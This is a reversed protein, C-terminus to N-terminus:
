TLIAVEYACVPIRVPTGFGTVPDWGPAAAFGDTDCGHSSGKTIDTFGKYGKSYIWPNLFGLSPKGSAILADNVLSIIGGTL